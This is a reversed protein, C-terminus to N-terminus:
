FAITTSQQKYILILSHCEPSQVIVCYDLSSNVAM